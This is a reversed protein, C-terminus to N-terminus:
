LIVVRWGCVSLALVCLRSFALVPGAVALRSRGGSRIWPQHVSAGGGTLRQRCTPGSCRRGRRGAKTCRLGRWM